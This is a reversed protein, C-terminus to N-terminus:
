VTSFFEHTLAKSRIEMVLVNNRIGLGSFFYFVVFLRSSDGREVGALTRHDRPTNPMQMEQYKKDATCGGM